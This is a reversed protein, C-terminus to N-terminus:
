QPIYVLGEEDVWQPNDDIWVDIDYGARVAAWRKTSTGAFVIPMLNDVLEEVEAGWEKGRNTILVCVHGADQFTKVVKRFTEPDAAFTGDFDVGIQM